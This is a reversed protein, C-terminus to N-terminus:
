GGSGSAFRGDGEADYRVIVPKSCGKEDLRLVAIELHARPLDGLKRPAPKAGPHDVPVSPQLGCARQRLFVSRSELPAPAPQAAITAAALLALM